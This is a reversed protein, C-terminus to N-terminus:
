GPVARASRLWRIVVREPWVRRITASELGAADCLRRYEAPTRAARVSLPGDMRAIRSSSLITTGIVALGLGLRSRLLDSVVIGLRAAAAIGRLLRTATADDLHHLFLSSVAVDCPPCGDVLVDRVDFRVVSGRRIAAAQSRAIARPSVDIGIVQADCTAVRQLRRALDLTVDGGGCAVDVITCARPSPRGALLDRVGEALRAATRSVLNIRALASLAHLHDPEAIAPDDM